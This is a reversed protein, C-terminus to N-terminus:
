TVRQCPQCGVIRLEPAGGLGLPQLFFKEYRHGPDLWPVKYHFFGLTNGLTSFLDIQIENKGPKLFGTCDAEYPPAWVDRVIRGNITLRLGEGEPKAFRLLYRCAPDFDAIHLSTAYRVRGAYFALGARTLDAAPDSPLPRVESVGVQCAGDWAVHFDGILYCNDPETGDPTLRMTDDEFPKVWRMRCQIENAGARLKGTLDAKRFGSDLWWDDANMTVPQGNVTIDSFAQWGDMVFWAPATAIAEGSIELRFRIWTEVNKPQVGKEICNAVSDCINPVAASTGFGRTFGAIGMPLSWPSQGLKFEARELVFVNPDLRDVMWPGALPLTKVTEPVATLAAQSRDLVLLCSGKAPIELELTTRGNAAVSPLARQGGTEGDWLGVRGEGELSIRAQFAHPNTGFTLFYLERDGCTRHMHIMTTVPEGNAGTVEVDQPVDALAEHLAEASAEPIRVVSKLFAALEESPAGDVFTAAPEVAIIRGGQAAFDKLMSFTHSSWTEASPIVVAEYAAQGIVFKGGEMCGHKEMLMEDAYDYDRQIELLRKSLELFRADIAEIAKPNKPSYLAWASQIPHLIAIRRVPEGRTLLYSIRGLYDNFSKYLAFGPLQYFSSQPYDHKRCGRISYLAMHQNMLNSGQAMLMDAVPRFTGISAEWGAGGFAECIMREHGLQHVVSDCQKQIIPWTLADGLYDIGPIHFYEYHPMAAGTARVQHLLHEEMMMHGVSAIGRKECWDYLPKVFGATLLETATRYFDLRVKRFDGEDYFLSALHPKLAYGHKKEFAAEFNKTWPLIEFKDGRGWQVWSPEDCFSGPTTTRFHEGIQQEYKDHTLRLFEETIEPDLLDPDCAGNLWPSGQSRVVEFTRQGDVERCALAHGAYDLGSDAIQGGAFGSPWREEDYIWAKIGLAKAEDTAARVCEFWKDGLYPTKLGARAHMFFGGYGHEAFLRVQRRIEAPELEDNWVWLPAPRFMAPPNQWLTSEIPTKHHM